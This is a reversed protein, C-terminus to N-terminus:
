ASPNLDPMAANDSTRGAHLGALIQKSADWFIFRDGNM